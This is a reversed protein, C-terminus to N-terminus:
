GIMAFMIWKSATWVARLVAKVIAPDRYLSVGTMGWGYTAYLFKGWDWLRRCAGKEQLDAFANALLGQLQSHTLSKTAPIRSLYLAVFEGIAEVVDDEEVLVYAGGLGAEVTSSVRAPM